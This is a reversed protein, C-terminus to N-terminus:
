RASLSFSSCCLSVVSFILGWLSFQWQGSRQHEPDRTMSEDNSAHQDKESTVEYEMTTPLLELSPSRYIKEGDSSSNCALIGKGKGENVSERGGFDQQIISTLHHIEQLGKVNTSSSIQTSVMSCSDREDDRAIEYPNSFQIDEMSGKQKFVHLGTQIALQSRDSVFAAHVWIEAYNWENELIVENVNESFQSQIDDFICIHDAEILLHDSIFYNNMANGNINLKPHVHFPTSSDDELTIVACLSIAPFMDRFWFSIPEAISVHEFWEPIRSGPLTLVMSGAERSVKHTKLFDLSALGSYSLKLITLEEPHFDSPLSSSPYERWELVRLSNPLHEVDVDSCGNRIILTRLNNMKKFAKGNWAIAKRVDPFDLMITQIKSSTM